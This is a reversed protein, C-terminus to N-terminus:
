APFQTDNTFCDHLLVNGLSISFLFSKLRPRSQWQQEVNDCELQLLTKSQRSVTASSLQCSSSLRVTGHKLTFKLQLTVVDRQTLDSDRVADQLTEMIESEPQKSEADWWSSIWQYLGSGATGSAASVQEPKSETNGGDSQCDRLVLALNSLSNPQQKPAPAPAPDAKELQNMAITRLVQLEELDWEAEIRDRELKAASSGQLLHEKYSEVYMVSDRARQLAAQWSRNRNRRRLVLLCSQQAFRWWEAANGPCVPASPRLKRFPAGADLMKLSRSCQVMQRLQSDVLQLDVRELHFDCAVRPEALTRLAKQSCNRQFRARGSAPALLFDRAGAAMRSTLEAPDEISSIMESETDWYVSFRHLELLKFMTSMPTSSPNSVFRPLWSSDCTEVTISDVLVGCSFTQGQCSSSDEYRIHM